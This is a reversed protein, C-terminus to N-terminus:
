VLDLFAKLAQAFNKADGSKMSSLMEEAATMQGEDVEGDPDEAASGPGEGDSPMTRDRGTLKPAGEVLMAALSKGDAM